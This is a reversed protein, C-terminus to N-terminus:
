LNKIGLNEILAYRKIMEGTKIHLDFNELPHVVNMDISVHKVQNQKNKEIVFLNLKGKEYDVVSIMRSQSADYEFIHRTITKKINAGEQRIEM